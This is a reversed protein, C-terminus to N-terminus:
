LLRVVTDQGRLSVVKLVQTAFSNDFALQSRMRVISMNVNASSNLTLPLSIIKYLNEVTM